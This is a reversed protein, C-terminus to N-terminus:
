TFPSTLNIKSQPERQCAAQGAQVQTVAHVGRTGCRGCVRAYARLRVGGFRGSRACRVYHARLWAGSYQACAQARVHQRAAVRSARNVDAVCGARVYAAPLLPGARM